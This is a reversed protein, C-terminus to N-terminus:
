SLAYFFIKELIKLALWDFFNNSEFWTIRLNINNGVQNIEHQEVNFDNEVWEFDM